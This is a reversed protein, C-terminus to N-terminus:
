PKDPPPVLGEDEDLVVDDEDEHVEVVGKDPMRRVDIAAGMRDDPVPEIDIPMGRMGSNYGEKKFHEREPTPHAEEPRKDDM